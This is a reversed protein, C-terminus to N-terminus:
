RSGEKNVEKGEENREEEEEEKEEKYEGDGRERGGEEIKNNDVKGLVIELFIIFISILKRWLFFCFLFIISNYGNFFCGLLSFVLFM